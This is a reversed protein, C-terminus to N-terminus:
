EQRLRTAEAQDGLVESCKAWDDYLFKLPHTRQAKSFQEVARRCNQKAEETAGGAIPNIGKSALQSYIYGLNAQAPWNAPDIQIAQTCERKAQEIKYLKLFVNCKLNHAYYLDENKEILYDLIGITKKFNSSPDGKEDNYFSAALVYPRVLQMVIQSAKLLIDNFDYHDNTITIETAISEEGAVRLSVQLTDDLKTIEGTIRKNPRGVLDSIFQAASRVTFDSGPIKAEVTRTGVSERPYAVDFDRMANRAILRTGDSLKQALVDPTYGSKQIFEPASISEITPTPRLIQYGVFVLLVLTVAFLCITAVSKILDAIKSLM